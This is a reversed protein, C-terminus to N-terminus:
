NWRSYGGGYRACILGLVIQLAPFGPLICDLDLHQKTQESAIAFAYMISTYRVSAFSMPLAETGIAQPLASRPLLLSLPFLFTYMVTTTM